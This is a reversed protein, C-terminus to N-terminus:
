TNELGSVNIMSLKVLRGSSVQRQSLDRREEPVNASDNKGVAPIAARTEFRSSSEVEIVLFKLIPVIKGKGSKIAAL